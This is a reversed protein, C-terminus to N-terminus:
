DLRIDGDEGLLQELFRRLPEGLEVGAFGMEDDLDGRRAEGIVLPELRPEIRAVANPLEPHNVGVLANGPHMGAWVSISPRRDDFTPRLVRESRRRQRAERNSEALDTSAGSSPSM